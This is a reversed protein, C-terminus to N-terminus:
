KEMICTLVAASACLGETKVHPPPLAEDLELEEEEEEEEQEQV